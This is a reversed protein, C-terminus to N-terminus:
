KRYFDMNKRGSVFIGEFGFMEPFQVNGSILHLLITFYGHHFGGHKQAKKLKCFNLDM